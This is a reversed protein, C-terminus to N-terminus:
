LFCSFFPNMEFSIKEGYKREFFIHSFSLSIEAASVSLTEWATAMDVALSARTLHAIVRAWTTRRTGSRDRALPTLCLGINATGIMTTGRGSKLSLEVTPNSSCQRPDLHAEEGNIINCRMTGEGLHDGGEPSSVDTSVHGYCALEGSGSWDATAKYLALTVLAAVVKMTLCATGM